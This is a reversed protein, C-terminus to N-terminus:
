LVSRLHVTTINAFKVSQRLCFAHIIGDDEGAAYFDVNPLSSFKDVLFNKTDEHV